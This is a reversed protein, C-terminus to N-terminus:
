RARKSVAFLGITVALFRYASNATTEGYMVTKTSQKLKEFRELDSSFAGARREFVGKLSSYHESYFIPASLFRTMVNYFCRLEEGRESFGVARMWDPRNFNIYSEGNQLRSKGLFIKM